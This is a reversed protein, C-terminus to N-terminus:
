GITIKEIPYTTPQLTPRQIFSLALTMSGIRGIYMLVMIVIRGILNLDRTIGTTMGVTSVASITEFLVDDFALNSTSMIILSAVIALSFNLMFVMLSKKIIDDSIRRHFVNTGSSNRLNCYVFVLIVAITTTKIGGATSGPSGGIFMLVMTLLKSAPTLAATDVTNFGATRTTVSGFLSALLKTPMNYEAITNHSEMFYLLIAGGFILIINVVIVLKTHLSYKKFNFRCSAIDKWVIFGLSGVVILGCLTLSVLPDSVYSVFSSYMEKRGMLDFGANCFASISHFISYYIGRLGFEPVFRFSLLIAGIGEFLLTGYIINKWLKIIGGIELANVSEKLLDRERLGIQRRFLVSFGVGVTIFGLGGIQILLLIIFQGFWSWHTYTDVVALGTVCSTSTATFLATLPDTWEHSRSSIPLSLLFGGTLIILFFGLAIFQVQNFIIIKHKKKM